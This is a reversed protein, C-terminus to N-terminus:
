KNNKLKKKTATKSGSDEKKVAQLEEKLVENEQKLVTAISEIKEFQFGM